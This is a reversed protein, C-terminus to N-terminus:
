VDLCKSFLSRYLIDSDARLWVGVAGVTMCEFSVISGVLLPCNFDTM